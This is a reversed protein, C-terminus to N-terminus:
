RSNSSMPASPGAPLPWGRRCRREALVGTPRAGPETWSGPPRPSSVLVRIHGAVSRLLALPHDRRDAVMSTLHARPRNTGARSAPQNLSDIRLPEVACRLWLSDSMQGSVRGTMLDDVDIATVSRQDHGAVRDVVRGLQV